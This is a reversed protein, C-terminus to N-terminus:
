LLFQVAVVAAALVIPLLALFNLIAQDQYRIIAVGAIISGAISAAAAAFVGIPVLAWLPLFLLSLFALAVGWRGTRTRPM